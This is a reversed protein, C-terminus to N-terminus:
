PQRSAASLFDRSASIFNFKIKTNKINLDVNKYQPSNGVLMQYNTPDNVDIGISFQLLNEM